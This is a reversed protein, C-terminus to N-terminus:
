PAGYELLPSDQYGLRTAKAEFSQHAPLPEKYFKWTTSDPHKWILTADSLPARLFFYGNKETAEPAELKPQKGDPLWQAILEAEPQSGLDRTDRIWHDLVTRLHALTDRFAAKDALNNLEYPDNELDYLEEEPKPTRFWRGQVSDLKGAEWLQRMSQMMPMQERYRVPLANSIQPNYNRIYKFRESRVARLRDYVEDFRDSTTFIYKHPNAASFQGLRARGQMVKPPEIGALSLLTPALDVFSLFGSERTGARKNGPYKVIFPVKTGTEYLARKYRPFPGGHDSYFFIYTNEYLGDEKLQDLIAGLQRDMRILNSYNVALDHRITDNDPFYPPIRIEDPNVLLDEAGREWIQSEHTIGFNFVSFFPSGEPRSRWHADKGSVDWAVPGARFNYDTKARNTCYYGAQRLYETVMRVGQPVVPSYSPIGIAPQNEGSGTYTRMNHTGLSTAYMGTIISSRAPACVPVTAYARTYTVGESALRELEPLHVTSDGYMPFFEPSQDEAVLWLINPRSQPTQGGADQGCGIVAWFAIPLMGISLARM